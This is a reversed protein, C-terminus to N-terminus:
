LLLQPIFETFYSIINQFDRACAVQNGWAEIHKKMQGALEADDEVIMIKYM